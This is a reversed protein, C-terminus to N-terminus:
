HPPLLPQPCHYRLEDPTQKPDKKVYFVELLVLILIIPYYKLSTSIISDIDEAYANATALYRDKRPFHLQDTGTAMLKATSKSGISIAESFVAPDLVILHYSYSISIRIKQGDDINCHCGVQRLTRFYRM